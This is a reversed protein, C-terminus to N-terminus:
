QLSNSPPLKIQMPCIDRKFTVATRVDQDRSASDCTHKSRMITVADYDTIRSENCSSQVIATSIEKGRTAAPVIEELVESVGQSSMLPLQQEQHILTQPPEILAQCLLHDTGYEVTLSIGHRVDFREMDPEGYRSHFDQSSPTLLLSGASVILFGALIRMEADDYAVKWCLAISV